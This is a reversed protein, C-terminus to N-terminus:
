YYVDNANFETKECLPVLSTLSDVCFIKVKDSNQPIDAEFSLSTKKDSYVSIDKKLIVEALKDGHYTAFVIDVTGSKCRNSEITINVTNEGPIFDSYNCYDLDFYDIYFYYGGKSSTRPETVSVTLRNLGKNLYVEGFTYNTLRDNVANNKTAASTDFVNQNNFILAAKSYWQTNQTSVTGSFKYMGSNPVTIDYVIVYEAGDTTTDTYNRQYTGNTVGDYEHLNKTKFTNQSFNEGETRIHSSGDQSPVCEAALSLAYKCGDGIFTVNQCFAHTDENEYAIRLVHEGYKIGDPIAVTLM